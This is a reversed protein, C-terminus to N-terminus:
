KDDVMDPESGFILDLINQGRDELRKKVHPTLFLDNMTEVFEQSNSSDGSLTNWNTDNYNFDGMILSLKRSFHNTTEMLSTDGENTISPSRYCVGIILENNKGTKVKAWVSENNGIVEDNVSM